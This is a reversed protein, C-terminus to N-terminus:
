KILDNEFIHADILTRKHMKKHGNEVYVFGTELCIGLCHACEFMAAFQVKGSKQLLGSFSIRQKKDQTTEIAQTKILSQFLRLRGFRIIFFLPNTKRIM